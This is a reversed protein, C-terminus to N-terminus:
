ANLATLRNLDCLLGHSWSLGSTLANMNVQFNFPARMKMEPAKPHLLRSNFLFLFIVQFISYLTWQLTGSLFVDKFYTPRPACSCKIERGRKRSFGQFHGVHSIQRSHACFAGSSGLKHEEAPDNLRLKAGAAGSVRCWLSAHQLSM